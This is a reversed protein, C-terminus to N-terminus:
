CTTDAPPFWARLQDRLRKLAPDTCRPISIRGAINAYVASSRPVQCERLVAEFAEKPPDPKGENSVTFGAVSVWQRISVEHSWGLVPKLANDSGWIWAELEPVIAITKANSGWVPRLEGDLRAELEEPAEQAGSGDYDLVMLAHSYARRRLRVVEAGTSRVGGDRQVHVSFDVTVPRIGLSKPRELGARITYEMNSDAVLVILDKVAM